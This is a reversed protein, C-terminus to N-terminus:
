KWINTLLISYLNNRVHVFNKSLLLFLSKRMQMELKNMTAQMGAWPTFSACDMDMDSRWCIGAVVFAACVKWFPVPFKQASAGNGFKIGSQGVPRQGQHKILTHTQLAGKNGFFNGCGRIGCPFKKPPLSLMRGDTRQSTIEETLLRESQVTGDSSTVVRTRTISFINAKKEEGHKSTGCPSAARTISRGVGLMAGLRRFEM